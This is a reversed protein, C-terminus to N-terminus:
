DNILNDLEQQLKQIKLKDLSGDMKLSLIKDRLKQIYFEKYETDITDNHYIENMLEDYTLSNLFYEKIKSM